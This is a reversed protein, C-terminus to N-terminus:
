FRDAFDMNFRKFSFSARFLYIDFENGKSPFVLLFRIVDDKDDYEM